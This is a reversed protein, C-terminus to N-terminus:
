SSFRRSAIAAQALYQAPSVSTTVSRFAADQRRAVLVSLPRDMGHCCGVIRRQEPQLQKATYDRRCPGTLKEVECLEGGKLLDHSCLGNDQKIRECHRIALLDRSVEHDQSPM